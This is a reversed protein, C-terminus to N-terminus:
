SFINLVKPDDGKKYNLFEDTVEIDCVLPGTKLAMKIMEAGKIRGWEVVKLGSYNKQIYTKDKSQM